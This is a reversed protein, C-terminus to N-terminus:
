VLWENEKHAEFFKEFEQKRFDFKYDNYKSIAEEDSLSDDFTEMFKKFTLMVRSSTEAKRNLQPEYTDDDFRTRKASPENRWSSSWSTSNRKQRESSGYRRSSM